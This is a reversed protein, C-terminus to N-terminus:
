KLQRDIKQLYRFWRAPIENKTAQVYEEEKCAVEMVEGSLSNVEFWWRGTNAEHLFVVPYDLGEIEVKYATRNEPLTRKIVGNLFYWVIEAALAVTIGDKDTASITEFLGFVKLRTSLGAYQALLCAEEGRLGNPNKQPTSPAEIFKVAGMDFSLVNTNRLIVEAEQINGRLLGLRVHEGSIPLKAILKEGTLHNQYGIVSYHFLNPFIKFLRTLYNSSNFAETGKKIDPVADVSTLWFFRENKFTECIGMTLEQSGGLIVTVVNLDTLYEVVDRLAFFTGKSGKSTKLNGLDIINHNEAFDALRYLASRIKDPACASKKQLIGNDFPAGFIVIGPKKFFSLNSNSTNKIIAQGLSLKGLTNEAKSFLSTDVPNFYDTLNM